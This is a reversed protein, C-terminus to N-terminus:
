GGAFKNEKAYTHPTQQMELHLRAGRYPNARAISENLDTGLGPESSPIIHGDEWHIPKTLLSQHLAGGTLITEAMLLNPTCASLQINAAFEIPGAYLHPAIQANFVEAM